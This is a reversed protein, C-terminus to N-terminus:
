YEDEVEEESKVPNSTYNLVYELDFNKMVEDPIRAMMDDILSDVSTTVAKTPLKYITNGSGNQYSKGDRRSPIIHVGFEYTGRVVGSYPIFAFDRTFYNTGKEAKTLEAEGIKKRIRKKLDDLMIKPEVPTNSFSNLNENYNRNKFNGDMTFTLFMMPLHVNIEIGLAHYTNIKYEFATRYVCLDNNNFPRESKIGMTLGAVEKIDMISLQAYEGDRYKYLTGFSNHFHQGTIFKENVLTTLNEAQTEEVEVVSVYKVDRGSQLKYEEGDKEIIEWKKPPWGLTVETPAYNAVFDIIEQKLAKNPNAYISYGDRDDATEKNILHEKM